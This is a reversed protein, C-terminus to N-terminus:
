TFGLLLVQPVEWGSYWVQGRRGVLSLTIYVAFAMANKVCKVVVMCSAMLLGFVQKILSDVLIFM